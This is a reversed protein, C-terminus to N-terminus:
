LLLLELAGKGMRLCLLALPREGTLTVELTVNVPGEWYVAGEKPHLVQMAQVQNTLRPPCHELCSDRADATVYHLPRM